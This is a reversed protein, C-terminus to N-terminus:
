STGKLTIIPDRIMNWEYEYTDYGLNQDLNEM